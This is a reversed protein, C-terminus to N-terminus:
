AFPVWIKFIEQNKKDVQRVANDESNETTINKYQNLSMLIKSDKNKLCINKEQYKKLM